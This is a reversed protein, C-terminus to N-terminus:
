SSDARNDSMKDHEGQVRAGMLHNFLRQLSQATAVWVEDLDLAEVDHTTIINVGMALLMDDDDRAPTRPSAALVSVAEEGTRCGCEKGGLREIMQDADTVCTRSVLRGMSSENTITHQGCGNAAVHKGAGRNSGDKIRDARSDAGDVSKGGGSRGSDSQAWSSCAIAAQSACEKDVFDGTGHCAGTGGQCFDFGSCLAYGLGNKANADSGTRTLKRWDFAARIESVREWAESDMAFWTTLLLLEMRDVREDGFDTAVKALKLGLSVNGHEDVVQAGDAVKFHGNYCVRQEGVLSDLSDDNLMLMLEGDVMQDRFAKLVPEPMRIAQLWRQTDSVSWQLVTDRMIGQVPTPPAGASPTPSALQMDMVPTSAHKTPTPKTAQHAASSNPSADSNSTANGTVAHPTGLHPGGAMAAAAALSGVAAYTPLNSDSLPRQFPYNTNPDISSPVITTGFTTHSPDLSARKGPNVDGSRAERTTPATAPRKARVTTATTGRKTRTGRDRVVTSKFVMPLSNAPTRAHLQEMATSASLDALGDLARVVASPIGREQLVEPSCQSELDLIFPIVRMTRDTAMTVITNNCIITRTVSRTHGALTLVREWTFRDIVYAKHTMSSATIYRGCIQVDMLMDHCNYRHLVTGRVYDALIIEGSAGGILMHTPKDSNTDSDTPHADSSINVIDQDPHDDLFHIRVVGRSACAQIMCMKTATAPADRNRGVVRVRGDNTGVAIVDGRPARIAACTAEMSTDMTLIEGQAKISLVQVIYPTSAQSPTKHKGAIVIEDGCISITPSQAAYTIKTVPTWDSTNWIKVNHDYASTILLRGDDSFGMDRIGYRPHAQFLLEPASNEIPATLHRYVAVEGSMLGVCLIDRQADYAVSRPSEPFVLCYQSAMTAAATAAAADQPTEAAARARTTASARGRGRAATGRGRPRGRPRGRVAPESSAGLMATASRTAM